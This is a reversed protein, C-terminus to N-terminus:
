RRVRGAFPLQFREPTRARPDLWAERRARSPEREGIVQELDVGKSPIEAM